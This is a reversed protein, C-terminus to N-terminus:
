PLAVRIQAWFWVKKVLNKDITVTTM